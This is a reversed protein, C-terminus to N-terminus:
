EKDWLGEGIEKAILNAYHNMGRMLPTLNWGISDMRFTITVHLKRPARRTIKYRITLPLLTM